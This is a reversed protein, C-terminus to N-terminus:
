TPRYGQFQLTAIRTPLFIDVAKRCNVLFLHKNNQTVQASLKLNKSSCTDLICLKPGLLRM